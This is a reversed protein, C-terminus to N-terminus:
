RTGRSRRGSTPRLEHTPMAPSSPARGLATGGHDGGAWLLETIDSIDFLLLTDSARLLLPRSIATHVTFGEVHHWEIVNKGANRLTVVCDQPSSFAHGVLLSPLPQKLVTAVDVFGLASAWAPNAYVFNGDKGLGMVPHRMRDLLVRAPVQELLGDPTVAHPRKRRENPYVGIPQANMTLGGLLGSVM